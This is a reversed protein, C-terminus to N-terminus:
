IIQPGVRRDVVHGDVEAGGDKRTRAALGASDNSNKFVTGGVMEAVDHAAIGTGFRAESSM